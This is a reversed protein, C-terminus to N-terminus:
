SSASPSVARGLYSGELLDQRDSLEAAPGETVLRGRDLLYVRDAVELAVHVHQEVLLVAVDSRTAVDQLAGVLREVVIPALGLSLEDVILVSPQAALARGLAVM